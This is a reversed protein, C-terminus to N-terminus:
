VDSHNKNFYDIHKQIRHEVRTKRRETWVVTLVALAFIIIGYGIPALIWWWSLDLIGILKLIAFCASMTVVVYGLWGIYPLKM